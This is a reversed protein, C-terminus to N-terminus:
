YGEHLGSGHLCLRRTSTSEMTNDRDVRTVCRNPFYVCARYLPFFETQKHKLKRWLRHTARTLRSLVLVLAFSKHKCLMPNCTGNARNLSPARHGAGTQVYGKTPVRASIQSGHGPVPVQELPLVGVGHGPRRVLRFLREDTGM